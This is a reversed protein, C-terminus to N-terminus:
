YQDPMNEERMEAALDKEAETLERYHINGRSDVDAGFMYKNMASDTLCKLCPCLGKQCCCCYCVYLMCLASAASILCLIVLFYRETLSANPAYYDARRKRDLPSDASSNASSSLVPFSYHLEESCYSPSSTILKFQHM